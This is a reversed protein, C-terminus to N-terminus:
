LFMDNRGGPITRTPHDTVLGLEVIAQLYYIHCEWTSISSEAVYKSQMAVNWAGYWQVEM